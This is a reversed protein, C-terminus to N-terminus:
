ADIVVEFEENCRPCVVKYIQGAGTEDDKNTPIARVPGVKKGNCTDWNKLIISQAEAFNSELNTPEYVEVNDTEIQELETEIVDVMDNENITNDSSKDLAVALKNLIVQLDQITKKNQILGLIEQLSQLEKSM